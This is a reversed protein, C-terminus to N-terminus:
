PAHLALPAGSRPLPKSSFIPETTASNAIPALKRNQLRHIRALRQLLSKNRIRRRRRISELIKTRKRKRITELTTMNRQSSVKAGVEGAGQVVQMAGDPLGAETLLAGLALASLPTLESPKFVVSNGLALAPAIKWAGTQIPYNWAGLGLCVGFPERTTYAFTGGGLSIHRGEFSNSLALAGFYEFADAATSADAVLTEQLPKGTDMTELVSFERNRVRLLRAAELLIRGREPAGRASWAGQVRQAGAVAREIVADSAEHVRAIEEGTAPYLVSMLAGQTDECYGGDVYHSGLPQYTQESM